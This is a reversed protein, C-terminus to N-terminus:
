RGEEKDKGLFAGVKKVEERGLREVLYKTAKRELNGGKGDGIIRSKKM